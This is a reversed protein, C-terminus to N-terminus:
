DITLISRRYSKAMLGGAIILINLILALHEKRRSEKKPMGGRMLRGGGTMDIRISVVDKLMRKPLLDILREGLSKGSREMGADFNGPKFLNIDEFWM